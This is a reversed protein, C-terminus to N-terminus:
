ESATEIRRAAEDALEQVIRLQGDDFERPRVDLSCVSGLVHGRTSIVPAGIYSRVGEMTVLPNGRFEPDVAFDNVYRAAPRRLLPACFAWELPTGGVEGIWDPIPGRGALFVQADSLLGTVIAFPMDMRVAVQEVLEALYDRSIERDVGLRAVELLRARDRAEPYDTVM